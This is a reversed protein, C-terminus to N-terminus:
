FAKRRVIRGTEETGLKWKESLQPVDYCYSSCPIEWQRCIDEVVKQDREAEEGRIGHNVHVVRLGFNWGAQLSKLLHLMTMSDNGGSVGAIIMSNEPIMKNQEAFRKVKDLTM